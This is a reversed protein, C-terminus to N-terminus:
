FKYTAGIQFFRGPAATISGGNNSYLQNTFNLARFYVAFNESIDYNTNFDFVNYRGNIIAAKNIKTSLVGLLNAKFKRNGYHVGIQYVDPQGYYPSYDVTGTKKNEVEIHTHAYGLDYSWHDDFNQKFTLEIGHRKQKETNDMYYISQGGSVQYLTYGLIDDLNKHFLSFTLNTDEDFDHEVGFIESHGSESSLKTLGQREAYEFGWYTVYGNYTFGREVLLADLEGIAPTRYVRGWSAYFKTKDDARYNTAFKPSWHNGFKSTHDLRVGPILTWKNGLTITDQVYSAINTLKNDYICNTNYFNALYDTSSYSEAERRHYEVGALLKHHDDLEWGNQYELGQLKSSFFNYFNDLALGKQYSNFYRFWGPTSTNGKFKYEVSTHNSLNYRNGAYYANVAGASNLRMDSADLLSEYSLDKAFDHSRHLYSVTLSNRDSFQDDLRISFDRDDYDTYLYEWSNAINNVVKYDYADSKGFGATVFWSLKGKVGQNTLEYNQRHWSGYSVDLETENLKGKKTIINIVGGVADSGYLASAGGKVLEIREIMKVSPIANLSSTTGFINSAMGQASNIRHGDVLLLVRNGTHMPAYSGEARGIGNIWVGNVHSLIEAVTQYHNAEIEEATIVTVNAPTDWKNTPIREASFVFDDTLELYGIIDENSESEIDIEQSDASVPNQAHIVPPPPM